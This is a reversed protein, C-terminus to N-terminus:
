VWIEGSFTGDGNDIVRVKVGGLNAESAPPLTYPSTEIDQVAQTVREIGNEINLLNLSNIAPATGNVWETKTYDQLAM